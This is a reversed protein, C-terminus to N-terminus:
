ESAKGSAHGLMDSVLTDAFGPMCTHEPGPGCNHVYCNAERVSHACFCPSAILLIVNHLIRAPM